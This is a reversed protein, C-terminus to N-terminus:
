ILIDNQIQPRQTFVLIKASLPSIKTFSKRDADAHPAPTQSQFTTCLRLGCHINMFM